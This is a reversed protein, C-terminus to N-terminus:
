AAQTKLGGVLERLQTSGALLQTSASSMQECAASQEQTSASVEQAAAAHGEATRAISEVGRAASSVVDVNREAAQTVTAAADRTPSISRTERSM